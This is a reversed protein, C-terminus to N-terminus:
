GGFRGDVGRVVATSADGAEKRKKNSGASNNGNEDLDAFNDEEVGRLLEGKCLRVEKGKWKDVYAQVRAIDIHIVWQGRFHKVMKLTQLTSIIDETRICTKNAIEAISLNRNNKDAFLHFLTYTWYSRYSLKGLDSLPKEPSGIKKELKSLEYSVSIIFKGFGSRQHQPFTLICALNYDNASNKEKSFYGVIHSGTADSETVVYFMFPDVDYYLTKHDLFLKSLLCLNQCYVRNHKGDISFVSVAGDRYIERGPPCRQNCQDRHKIM